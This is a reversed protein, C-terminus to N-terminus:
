REQAGHFINLIHIEEETIQYVVIYPLGPVAFELTGEVHGSHGMLPFFALSEITARIKHFVRDAARPNKQAIYAGLDDLNKLAVSTYRVKM